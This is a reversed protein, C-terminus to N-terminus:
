LDPQDDESTFSALCQGKGKSKRKGPRIEGEQLKAKLIIKSLIGQRPM